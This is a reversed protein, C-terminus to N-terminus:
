TAVEVDYGDSALSAGHRECCSVEEDRYTALHTAPKRCTVVEGPLPGRFTAGFGNNEIAVQCSRSM